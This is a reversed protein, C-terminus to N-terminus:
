DEAQQPFISYFLRSIGDKLTVANGKVLSANSKSTYYCELVRDTYVVELSGDTTLFHLGRSQV